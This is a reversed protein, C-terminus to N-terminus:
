PSNFGDFVRVSDVAMLLPLKGNIYLQSATNSYSNFSLWLQSRLRNRSYLETEGHYQLRLKINWQEM